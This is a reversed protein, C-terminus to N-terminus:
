PMSNVIIQTAGRLDGDVQAWENSLPALIETPVRRSMQGGLEIAESVRELPSPSLVVAVQPVTQPSRMETWWWGWGALMFLAAVPALWLVPFAPKPPAEAARARVAQIISRHLSADARPSPPHRLAQDVMEAEEAFTRLEPTAEVAARNSASLPRGTDIANSIKFKMWIKM